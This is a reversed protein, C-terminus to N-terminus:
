SKRRRAGHLRARGGIGVRAAVIRKQRGVRGIPAPRENAPRIEVAPGALNVQGLCPGLCARRDQPVTRQSFSIRGKRRGAIPDERLVLRDPPLVQGAQVGVGALRDPFITVVPRIVHTAHVGARPGRRRDAAFSNVECSRRSQDATEIPGPPKDPFHLGALLEAALPGVESIGAGGGYDISHNEQRDATWPRGHDREVRTVARRFPLGSVIRGTISGSQWDDHLSLLLNDSIEFVREGTKVLVVSMNQPPLFKRLTVVFM